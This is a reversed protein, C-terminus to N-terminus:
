IYDNIPDKYCCMFTIFWFMEMLLILGFPWGIGTMLWYSFISFFFGALVITLLVPLNKVVNLKKTAPYYTLFGFTIVLLGFFILNCYLIWNNNKGLEFLLFKPFGL